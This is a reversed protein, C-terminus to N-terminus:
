EDKMVPDTILLIDGEPHLKLPDVIKSKLM